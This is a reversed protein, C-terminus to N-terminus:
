WLFTSLTYTEFLINKILPLINVQIFYIINYYIFLKTRDLLIQHPTVGIFNFLAFTNLKINVMKNKVNLMRMVQLAFIAYLDHNIGPKAIQPKARKELKVKTIIQLSKNLSINNKILM